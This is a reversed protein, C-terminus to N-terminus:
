QIPNKLNLSATYHLNITECTIRKTNSVATHLHHPKPFMSNVNFILKRLILIWKYQLCMLLTYKLRSHQTLFDRATETTPKTNRLVNLNYTLGPLAPRETAVPTRLSLSTVRTKKKVIYRSTQCYIQSIVSTLLRLHKQTSLVSFIKFKFPPSKTSIVCSKPTKKKFDTGMKQTRSASHASQNTICSIKSKVSISL